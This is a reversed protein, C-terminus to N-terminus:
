NDAEGGSACSGFTGALDCSYNNLNYSSQGLLVYASWTGGHTLKLCQVGCITNEDVTAIFNNLAGSITGLQATTDCNNGTAYVSYNVGDLSGTHTGCDNSNSDSKLLGAIGIAIASVTGVVAVCAGVNAPDLSTCVKVDTRKTVAMTGNTEYSELDIMHSTHPALLQATSTSADTLPFAATFPSVLALSSLLSVITPQM